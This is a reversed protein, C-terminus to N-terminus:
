AYITREGTETNLVEYSQYELSVISALFERTGVDGSSDIIAVANIGLYEDWQVLRGAYIKDDNDLDGGGVIYNAYNSLVRTKIEEITLQKKNASPIQFLVYFDHGSYTDTGFIGIEHVYVIPKPILKELEEKAWMIKM